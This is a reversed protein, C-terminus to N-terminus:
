GQLEKLQQTLDRIQEMKDPDNSRALSGIQNKISIRILDNTIQELSILYKEESDIIIGLNKLIAKDALRTEDTDLSEDLTNSNIEGNTILHQVIKQALRGAISFHDINQLPKIIDLVQADQKLYEPLQLLMACLEFYLSDIRYKKSSKAQDGSTGPAPRSQNTQHPSIKSLEQQISYPDIGIQQALQNVQSEQHVKNPIIAVFPLVFNTIKLNRNPDDAATSSVALDEIFRYYDVANKIDDKVQDPNIRLAEDPDKGNSLRVVKIEFEHPILATIARLTAKIGASDRDFCLIIRQSYRKMIRAQKETIASGQSGIANTIKNQHLAIVDFQGEVFLIYDLAQITKRAHFLGYLLESKKFVPTEPSNIYKVQDSDDIIRSSFGVTRGIHDHIPITIRGRFRDYWNRPQNQNDKTIILGASLLDQQSYGKKLLHEGTASWSDPAYGLEFQKISRANIQRHETLYQYPKEATNNILTTQYFESADNLVDYISPNIQPATTRLPTNTERALLELAARFDLNYQEMVYTFIDGGRDCGFCHWSQRQPSVFFSPKAEKHFPCLGSFNHGSKALKVQNGIYDVLDIKEKIIQTTDTM